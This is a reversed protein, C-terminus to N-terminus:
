WRVYKDGVNFCVKEREFTYQLMQDGACDSGTFTAAVLSQAPMTASRAYMSCVNTVENECANYQGTTYIKCAQSFCFFSIKDGM